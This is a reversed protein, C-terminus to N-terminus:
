RVESSKELFRGAYKKIIGSRLARSCTYECVVTCVIYEMGYRIIKGAQFYLYGVMHMGTLIGYPLAIIISFGNGM